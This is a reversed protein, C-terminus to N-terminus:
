LINHYTKNCIEMKYDCSPIEPLHMNIPRREHIPVSIMDVHMAILDQIRTDWSVVQL